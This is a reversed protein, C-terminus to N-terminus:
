STAGAVIRRVVVLDVRRNLARGAATANTATPRQDAYGALSLRSQAIGDAILRELVAAARAASLEWNSRFLPTSIPRDDTNGEVRIDNGPVKLRILKAVSGLVPAAGPKLVAEGTDFLLDDTLLRVVLGREDVVAELKSRLGHSAAYADVEQKLQALRQAEVAAQRQRELEQKAIQPATTTTKGGDLVGQSGDLVSKQSELVSGGFAQRLSVRLQSFKGQNVSSVAWMVIFLAMLLTIMDSYTLLWREMGADHMGDSRRRRRRVMRHKSTM